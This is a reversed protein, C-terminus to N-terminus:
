AAVSELRAERNRRRRREGRQRIRMCARCLRKGQPSTYTNEESWDHGHVCKDYPNSYRGSKGQKAARRQRSAADRCTRSCYKRPYGGSNTKPPIKEVCGRRQCRDVPPAIDRLVHTWYIEGLEGTYWAQVSNTACLIRDAVDFGVNESRGTWIHQITDYHLSTKAALTALGPLTDNNTLTGEVFRRVFPRILEAPVSM